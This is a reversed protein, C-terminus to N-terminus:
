LVIVKRLNQLTFPLFALYKLNKEIESHVNSLHKFKMFSFHLMYRLDIMPIDYYFTHKCSKVGYVPNNVTTNLSKVM